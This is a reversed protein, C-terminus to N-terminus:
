LALVRPLDGPRPPTTGHTEIALGAWANAFRLPEREGVTRALCFAALFADGAGCTDVVDVKVADARSVEAGDLMIAGEAGLKVVIRDTDLARRLAAFAAAEKAPAFAPDISRAEKLNLCMVGGGRYLAHNGAAQSIQSNIYVPKGARRCIGVIREVVAPSLLGHRYDSIVVAEAWNLRREVHGAVTSAAADGIFRDDRNDLQFLKYGDVWFRHKITTARGAEAFAILDLKPASFGSVLASKDDDGVLTIFAVAAGLELLNRCVLAAGGLSHTVKNKRAVITPTEASIGLATGYTYIDVITDGILLIRRQAFSALLDDLSNM